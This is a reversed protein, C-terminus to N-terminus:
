GNLVVLNLDLGRLREARLIVEPRSLRGMRLRSGSWASSGDTENAGAETSCRLSSQMPHVCQAARCATGGKDDQNGIGPSPSGEGLVTSCFFYDADGIHGLIKGFSRSAPDPRFAYEEEPM